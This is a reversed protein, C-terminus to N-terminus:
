KGLKLGTLPNILRLKTVTKGSADVAETKNTFFISFVGLV